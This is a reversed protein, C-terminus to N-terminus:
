SKKFNINYYNCLIQLHYPDCGINSLSISSLSNEYQVMRSALRCLTPLSSIVDDAGIFVSGSSNRVIYSLYASTANECRPAFREIIKRPTDFGKDVYNCLLKMGARIGFYMCTFQEFAPDTSVQKKGYWDSKSKKINFPNNNRLGRTAFGVM